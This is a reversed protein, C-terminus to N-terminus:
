SKEAIKTIFQQAIEIATNNIGHGLMSLLHCEPSVDLEELALKAVKYAEPPIVQDQDGHVLLINPKVKIEKKLEELKVIAGSFAIVGAFNQERRLAVHLSMISGQSFGCLFVKDDNLNFRKLQEDIFNNLIQSSKIIDKYWFDEDMEQMSFWQYGYAAMDCRFPANVSIFHPNPIHKAFDDSLSMLDKCDAGLGHLFLMLYDPRDSYKKEIFDLNKKM